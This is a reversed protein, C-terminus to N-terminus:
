ALCVPPACHYSLFTKEYCSPRRLWGDGPKRKENWGTMLSFEAFFSMFNIIENLSGKQAEDSM